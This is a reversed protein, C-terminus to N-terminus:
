AAAKLIMSEVAAVVRGTQVGAVITGAAVVRESSSCNGFFSREPGGRGLVSVALHSSGRFDVNRAIHVTVLCGTGAVAVAVAVAVANRNDVAIANSCDHGM